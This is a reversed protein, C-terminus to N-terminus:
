FVTSHLVLTLIAHYSGQCCVDACVNVASKIHIHQINDDNYIILQKVKEATKGTGEKLVFVNDLLATHHNSALLVIRYYGRKNIM